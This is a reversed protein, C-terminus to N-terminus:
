AINQLFQPAFNAESSFNHLFHPVLLHSHAARQALLLSDEYRLWPQVREILVIM